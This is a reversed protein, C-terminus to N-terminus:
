SDTNNWNIKIKIYLIKLLFNEIEVFYSFRLCVMLIYKESNLVRFTYYYFIYIKKGM